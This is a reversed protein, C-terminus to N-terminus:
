DEVLCANFTPVNRSVEVPPSVIFSRRALLLGNAGALSHEEFGQLACYALCGDVCM